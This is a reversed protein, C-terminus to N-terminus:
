VYTRFPARIDIAVQTPVKVQQYKMLLIDNKLSWPIGLFHEWVNPWRIEFLINLLNEFPVAFGKIYTSHVYNFAKLILYDIETFYIKLYIITHVKTAQLKLKGQPVFNHLNRFIELRNSNQTSQGFTSHYYNSQM